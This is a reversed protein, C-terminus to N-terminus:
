ARPKCNDIKRSIEGLRNYIGFIVIYLECVFRWFIIGIAALFPAAILMGLGAGFNMRFGSFAFGLAGIVIGAIGVWYFIKVLGTAILKDFSTFREILGGM